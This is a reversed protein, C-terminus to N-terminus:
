IVNCVQLITNTIESKFKSSGSNQRTTFVLLQNNSLLALTQRKCCPHYDFSFVLVWNIYSTYMLNVQLMKVKNIRVKYMDVNKNAYEISLVCPDNIRFHIVDNYNKRKIRFHLKCILGYKHHKIHLLNKSYTKPFHKEARQATINQPARRQKM